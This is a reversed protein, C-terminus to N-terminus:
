RDFTSYDNEQENSISNISNSITEQIQRHSIETSREGNVTSGEEENEDDSILSSPRV